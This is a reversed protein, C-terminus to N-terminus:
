DIETELDIYRIRGEYPRLADKITNSSTNELNASPLVPPTVGRKALDALAEIIISHVIASGAVTSSAGTPYVNGEIHVLADGPPVCNDIVVDAIEFLRKGSGHRPTSSRSQEVSTIALVSVNRSKMELAMEVPVANRGSNSIIIACDEPGVNELSLLQAAIGSEREARTSELAGKLFIFREDLIPNIAAIGGARFFVDEAIIHSHGTGFTHVLGGNAISEAVIKGARCINGSQEDTIRALIVRLGDIYDIHKM